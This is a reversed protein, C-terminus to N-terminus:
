KNHNENAEKTATQLNTDREPERADPTWDMPEHSKPRAHGTPASNVSATHFSLNSDQSDSSPIVIDQGFTSSNPKISLAVQPPIDDSTDALDIITTNKHTQEQNTDDTTPSLTINAIAKEVNLKKVTASAQTKRANRLPPSKAITTVTSREPTLMFDAASSSSAIIFPKHHGPAREKFVRTTPKKSLEQINVPSKSVQLAYSQRLAAIKAKTLKANATKRAASITTKKRLGKQKGKQSTGPSKKKLRNKSGATKTLIPSVKVPLNPRSTTAHESDIPTSTGQQQSKEPPGTPDSTAKRKRTQNINDQRQQTPSKSSQGMQSARAQQAKEALCVKEIKRKNRNYEGVTKCAVFNILRLKPEQKQERPLPRTESSIAIDNNRIVTNKRNHTDISITHPTYDVITGDPIISWLPKLTGRPEPNKRRITKRALNRRTQDIITTKDGIQFKFKSPIITRKQPPILPANDSESTDSM